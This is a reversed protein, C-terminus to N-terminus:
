WAFSLNASKERIGVRVLTQRMRRPDHSAAPTRRSAESTNGRLAGGASRWHGCARSPVHSPGSISAPGSSNMSSTSCSGRPMTISVLIVSSVRRSQSAAAESPPDRSPESPRHTMPVVRVRFRGDPVRAVATVIVCPRDKRGETEGERAETAGAFPTGCSWARFRRRRCRWPMDTRSKQSATAISQRSTPM